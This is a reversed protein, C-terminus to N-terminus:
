FNVTALVTDTFSGAPVSQGKTIRGYATIDRAANSPAAGPSVTGAGDDWVTTRGSDSYIEYTLYNGSGDTMRRGSSYNAGQGLTVTPATGQTCTITVTGSADRDVGSSANTVAPDYSGLALTSTSITCNNTVTATVSLNATATGAHVAAPPLVAAIIFTFCGIVWHLKNM